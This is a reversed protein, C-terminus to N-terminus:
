EMTDNYITDINEKLYKAVKKYGKENSEESFGRYKTKMPTVNTIKGENNTFITIAYGFNHLIGNIMWLLGADKFEQWCSSSDVDINCCDNIKMENFRDYISKINVDTDNQIYSRMISSIDKESVPNFFPIGSIFIITKWLAIVFDINNIEPTDKNICLKEMTNEWCRMLRSTDSSIRIPLGQTNKLIPVIYEFDYEEGLYEGKYHGYLKVLDYYNNM